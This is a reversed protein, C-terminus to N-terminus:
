AVAEFMCSTLILTYNTTFFSLFDLIIYEVFIWFETNKRSFKGGNKFVPQIMKANQFFIINNQLHLLSCCIALGYLQKIFEAEKEGLDFSMM